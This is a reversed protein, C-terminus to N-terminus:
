RCVHRFVYGSCKGRSTAKGWAHGSSQVFRGELMHRSFLVVSCNALSARRVSDKTFCCWVFVDFQTSRFLQGFCRLSFEGYFRVSSDRWSSNQPVTLALVGLDRSLSPTARSSGGVRNTQSTFYLLNSPIYAGQASTHPLFPFLPHVHPPPPLLSLPPPTPGASPTSLLSSERRGSVCSAQCGRAARCRWRFRTTSKIRSTARMERRTLKEGGGLFFARPAEVECFCKKSPFM